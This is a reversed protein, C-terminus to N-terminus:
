SKVYLWGEKLRDLIETLAAPVKNAEPLLTVEKGEKLRANEMAFGCAVFRVNSASLSKIRDAYPSGDRVMNLGDANAVVILDLKSHNKKSSILIEDVKDLAKEIREKDNSSVHVLVKNDKGAPIYQNVATFSESVTHDSNFTLYSTVLVGVLIVISAAMAVMLKGPQRDSEFAFTKPPKPPQSYALALLDMDKRLNNFEIALADDNNIADLVQAKEHDHLENDILANLQEETIHEYAKM